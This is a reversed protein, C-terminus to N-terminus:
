VIKLLRLRFCFNMGKLKDSLANEYEVKHEKVRQDINQQLLSCLEAFSYKPEEVDVEQDGRIKKVPRHFISQSHSDVNEDTVSRKGFM